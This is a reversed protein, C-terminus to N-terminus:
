APSATSRATEAAQPHTEANVERDERRAQARQRAWERRSALNERMLRDFVDQDVVDLRKWPARGLYHRLSDLSERFHNFQTPEEESEMFFGPDDTYVVLKLDQPVQYVSRIMKRGNREIAYCKRRKTPWDSMQTADEDSGRPFADLFYEYPAPKLTAVVKSNRSQLEDLLDFFLQLAESEDPEHRLIMPLYGLTSRDTHLRYAVWDLFGLPIIRPDDVGVEHRGLSYGNLFDHLATLSHRGLYMAPRLRIRDLISMEETNM